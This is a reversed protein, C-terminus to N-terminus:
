LGSESAQFQWGRAEAFNRLLKSVKERQSNTLGSFVISVHEPFPQGDPVVEVHQAQCEAVNAALVGASPLGLQATYHQWADQASILDGHYASLRDEDKPTPRFVQSSPRGAQIWSPHVQRLLLTEDNM